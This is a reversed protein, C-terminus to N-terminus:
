EVLLPIIALMMVPSDDGLPNFVMSQRLIYRQAQGKPKMLPIYTTFHMLNM